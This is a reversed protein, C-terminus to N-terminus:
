IHIIQGFIYFVNLIILYVLLNTLCFFFSFFFGAGCFSSHRHIKQDYLGPRRKERWILIGLGVVFEVSEGVRSTSVIENGIATLDRM